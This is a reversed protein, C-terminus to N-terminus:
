DTGTQGRWEALQNRVMEAYPSELAEYIELAAEALATARVRDGLEDVCLSMNGLADGEGRRDGIERLMNGLADGEGRRDGIERLILLSLEYFEIAKHLKGLAIWANGLNNLTQCESRRDGIQRSMKLHEEYLEIAKQTEGLRKYAIGLNGLASGEGKRDGIERAVALSQELFDVAKRLEGLHGYATGLNCLASGESRREGIERSITLHQEYLGIAKRTEGLAAWALGLNGLDNGENRRNGIKRSIILAQEHFEIAKRIEGLAAWALGLNGIAVGENIRQKLQRAATLQFELWRIRERPHLRLLIVYYGANPYDICLQAADRDKEISAESWRQGAQINSWEQDFLALGRLVSENGEDYLSQCAILATRYHLAFRKRAAYTEEAGADSLRAEAFLRALDHLRYRGTEANFEVLSWRMLDGIANQASDCAMEWVAAVADDDFTQPFVSLARWLRRQEETLMEYSVNLAVDVEKLHSLRQKADALRRAYDAPTLNLREALAGAAIRLALPLDGCLRAIGDAHDGIRGAINHLLKISDARPLMDLNQDFMGPLKFHQRSTVLLVCGTPPVLPEVQSADRANDMLLLARQNHLSSRYLASLESPSEPLRATPHYARIVHEMARAPTLPSAGAGQLDLYIQADPYLDKIREALKLALATKGVGGLGHMGSITVGQGFKAFLENLEKERGTFDPPPLPLQHKPALEQAPANHINIIKDRGFVDGQTNAATVAGGQFSFPGQNHDGVSFGTQHPAPDKGSVESADENARAAVIARVIEVVVAVSIVALVWKNYPAFKQKFDDSLFEPAAAGLFALLALGGAGIAHPAWRRRSHKPSRKM